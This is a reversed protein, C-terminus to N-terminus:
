SNGGCSRLEARCFQGLAERTFGGGFLLIRSADERDLLQLACNLERKAEALNASRKAILGIHLHPMAFSSDLYIAARDHEKASERDGVHEQCLAMLYHAGASLDDLRLLRQCTKEAEALKGGNTLLVALLLQADPDTNSEQPLTQLVKMAEDFREKRLLDLVLTRDWILRRVPSDNASLTARECAAAAASSCREQTLSAIRQSSRQIIECWSDSQELAPRTSSVELFGSNGPIERVPVWCTKGDGRRQYYFSDQTHRLHFDQSIGRLTEAHGLFLFGGATLSSALRAIVARTAEPAFYMTVNRCFIIDFADRCWFVSDEEILNREKFMAMPRVAGDLLFQRGDPRFYKERLGNSTGRLAWASYRGRKAAELMTPNIDIGLIVVEWSALAPLRERILIALSYAEEGSACGASLIRLQRSQRSAEMRDPVVIEEFARFHDSYRFFYTECVTLREALARLEKTQTTRDALLERYSAFQNCRNQEMRQQLVEALFDLKGDDFWLGLREAVISRLCEVEATAPAVIM